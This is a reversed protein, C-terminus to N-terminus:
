LLTRHNMLKFFFYFFLFYFISPDHNTTNVKNKTLSLLLGAAVAWAEPWLHNSGRIDNKSGIPLSLSPNM